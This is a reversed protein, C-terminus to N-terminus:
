WRTTKGDYAYGPVQADIGWCLFAAVQEGTHHVYYNMGPELLDAGDGNMNYFDYPPSYTWSAIAEAYERTIPRFTYRPM